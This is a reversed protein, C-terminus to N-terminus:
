ASTWLVITMAREPHPLVSHWHGHWQGELDCPGGYDACWKVRPAYRFHVQDVEIGADDFPPDAVGSDLLDERLMERNLDHGLHVRGWEGDNTVIDAPYKM